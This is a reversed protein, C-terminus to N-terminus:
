VKWFYSGILPPEVDVQGDLNDPHGKTFFLHRKVSAFLGKWFVFHNLEKTKPLYNRLKEHKKNSINDCIKCTDVYKALWLSIVYIIYFSVTTM